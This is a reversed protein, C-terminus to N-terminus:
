YYTVRKVKRPKIETIYLDFVRKMDLELETTYVDGVAYSKVVKAGRIMGQVQGRLVDNQTVAGKVTLNSGLKQGYVQEALERYAEIKSAKIAMLMRETESDGPQAKLPAYGVARLVPYTDPEVVSYEVHKDFVSSCATSLLGLALLSILRFKVM